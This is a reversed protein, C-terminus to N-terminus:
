SASSEGEDEEAVDDAKDMDSPRKLLGALQYLRRLMPTVVEVPLPSILGWLVAGNKAGVVMGLAEDAGGKDILGFFKLIQDPTFDRKITWERGALKVKAPRLMRSTMMADLDEIMQPRNNRAGQTTM